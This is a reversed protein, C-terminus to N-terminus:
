HLNELQEREAYADNIRAMTTQNPMKGADPHYIKTLLNRLKKCDELSTNKDSGLVIWWDTHEKKKKEVEKEAIELAEEKDAPDKIYINHYVGYLYLALVMWPLINEPRLFFLSILAIHTLFEEKTRFIPSAM